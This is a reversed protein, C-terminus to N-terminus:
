VYKLMVNAIFKRICNKQPKFFKIQKKKYLLTRLTNHAKIITRIELKNGIRQFKESHNPIYPLSTVFRENHQQQHTRQPKIIIIKTVTQM